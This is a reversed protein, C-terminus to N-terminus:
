AGPKPATQRILTDLKSEIKDLRGGQSKVESNLASANWAVNIAGAVLAVLVGAFFVGIWKIVGLQTEVTSRFGTFENRLSDVSRTLDKVESTLEGLDEDVSKATVSRETM